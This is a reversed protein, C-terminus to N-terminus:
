VAVQVKLLYLFFRNSQQHACKFNFIVIKKGKSLLYTVSSIVFSKIATITTHLIVKQALSDVITRIYREFQLLALM